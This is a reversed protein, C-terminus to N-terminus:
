RVKPILKKDIFVYTGDHYTQIVTLELQPMIEQWTLNKFQSFIKKAEETVTFDNIQTPDLSEIEKFIRYM